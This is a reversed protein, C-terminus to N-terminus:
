SIPGVITEADSNSAIITQIDDNPIKHRSSNDGGLSRSLQLQSRNVTLELIGDKLRRFRFIFDLKINTQLVAGFRVPIQPVPTAYRPV